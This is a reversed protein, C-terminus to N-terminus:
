KRKEKENKFVVTLQNKNELFEYRIEAALKKVMFIGLGGIKREEISLHVDPEKAATPDYPKGDDTFVLSIGEETEEIKLEFQKAGSYSVINSCVEDVAVSSKNLLAQSSKWESLTETLFDMATQISSKESILTRAKQRRKPNIRIALMTIDDSQQAGKVFEDIDTRVKECIEKPNCACSSLVNKLRKEGYLEKSPNFAETVGDTYLFIMDGKQLNTEQKKYKTTELGALIFNPKGTLYEFDNMGHRILPPNHGANVYKLLGSKTDLVGMWATVFMEADNNECLERNARTFTEDIDLGSEALNKIVAKARMMFLAGPIGKGSVDAILFAFHSSDVPWFDYFDGGVEKAADMLAFVSIDSRQSCSEVSPLSSQQIQRAFELEQNMRGEAEKIYKKLTKVTANIDDSLSSFEANKRVNIEVDLNGNTIEQLSDNIKHINDVIQRKVLLYVHVFLASLVIVEMFALITVAINRSFMAEEVPIHAVYCYGNKKLYMCFSQTEGINASFRMSLGDVIDTKDQSLSISEGVHGGNDFLIKGESDCALIGGNNGIHRNIVINKIEELDDKDQIENEVDHLNLTLLGDANAYAIRTQLSFTFILTASFAVIVCIMLFFQFVQNIQKKEFIKRALIKEEKTKKIKKKGILNLVLLSLMVSVANCLIMPIACAAVAKYAGFVDEMRFLFVLLMHLVETTGGIFLGHIWSPKKDDFLFKRCGAAFFGALLCSVSCAIQSFEGAGWYTAVFRYLGGILGAIIGSPGGFLLGSVLPAANRVNLTAGEVQIGFETGLIAVGGFLVGIIIQQLSGKIKGFRTKKQALYLLCALFVPLLTAIILKVITILDYKM